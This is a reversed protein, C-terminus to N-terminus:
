AAEPLESALRMMEPDFRGPDSLFPEGDEDGIALLVALARGLVPIDEGAAGKPGAGDWRERLATLSPLLQKTEAADAMRDLVARDHHRIARLYAGSLRLAHRMLTRQVKTLSLRAGIHALLPGLRAEMEDARQREALTLWGDVGVAQGSSKPESQYPGAFSVTRNRGSRKAEYLAEDAAKLLTAPEKATAPYAACGLSATVGVHQGTRSVYDIAAIEERIREAVRHAGELTLDPAVITFEEGGYRAALDVGRIVSKIAAAVLRLVRDGADHGEEENFRRFHDVDLMIVSLAGAQTEKEAVTGTLFEQMARHNAVGTLPDFNALRVMSEYLLANNISLSLHEAVTLLLEKNDQFAPDDAKAVIELVGILDSGVILPLVWIAGPENYCFRSELEMTYPSEHPRAVALPRRSTAVAEAACSMGGNPDLHRLLAVGERRVGQNAQLTLWSEDKQRVWLLVAALEAASAIEFVASQCLAELEGHMTLQKGIRRLLEASRSSKAAKRKADAEDRADTVLMFVGLGSGTQVRTSHFRFGDEYHVGSAGRLADTVLRALGSDLCSIREDFFALEAALGWRARAYGLTDLMVAGVREPDLNALLGPENVDLWVRGGGPLPIFTPFGQAEGPASEDQARLGLEELVELLKAQPDDRRM